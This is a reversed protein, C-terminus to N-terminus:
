YVELIQYERKHGKLSLEFTDGACKDILENGLPAEPTMTHVNIKKIEIKLGGHKPLLFYHKSEGDDDEITVLASLGIPTDEDFDEIKLKQLIQIDGILDEVRKSQGAALYSSELGRTDYENEAKSEENIAGDAAERPLGCSFRKKLSM